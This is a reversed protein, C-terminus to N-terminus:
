KEFAKDIIKKYDIEGPIDDIVIYGKGGCSRCTEPVTSTTVWNGDTSNYFGAPVMGKGGCVPCKESHTM